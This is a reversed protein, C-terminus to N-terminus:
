CLGAQGGRTKGHTTGDAIVVIITPRIQVNSTEAPINKIVVVAVAREGIDRFLCADGIAAPRGASGKTIVITVAKQVEHNGVVDIKVEIIERAEPFSRVALVATNIHLATRAAQSAGSVGKKVVIAIASKSIDRFARSDAVGVSVITHSHDPHIEVIGATRVDIDGVVRGRLKEVFVQTTSFEGFDAEFGARRDAFIARLLSGHADGYTVVVM